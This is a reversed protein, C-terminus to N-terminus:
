SFVSGIGVKVPREATGGPSLPRVVRLRQSTAWLGGWAPRSSTFASHFWLVVALAFIVLFLRWQHSELHEFIQESPLQCSGYPHKSCSTNNLSTQFQHCHPFAASYRSGGGRGGGTLLVYLTIPFSFAATTPLSSTPFSPTSPLADWGVSEVPNCDRSQSLSHIDLPYSLLKCRGFFGVLAHPLALEHLSQQLWTRGSMVLPTHM